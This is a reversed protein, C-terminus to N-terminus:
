EIEELSFDAKGMRIIEHAHAHASCTENTGQVLRRIEGNGYNSSIACANAHNLQFSFEFVQDHLKHGQNRAESVIIDKYNVGQNLVNGFMEMRAVKIFSLSAFLLEFGLALSQTDLAVDRIRINTYEKVAKGNASSSLAEMIQKPAKINRMYFLDYDRSHLSDASYRMFSLEPNSKIFDAVEGSLFRRSLCQQILSVIEM